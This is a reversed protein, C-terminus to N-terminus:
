SDWTVALMSGGVGASGVSADSRLDIPGAGMVAMKFARGAAAESVHGAVFAGLVALSESKRFRRQQRQGDPLRFAVRTSDSDSASPEDPLPPWSVSAVPPEEEEVKEKGKASTPPAAESASPRGTDELSAALARQLMEEESEEQPAARPPASEVPVSGGSQRPRKTPAQPEMPGRDMFPVLDEVLREHEVFGKWVHRKQGTLPDLVLIVPAQFLQYYTLVKSGEETDDYVQWFVFNSKLTDKVTDQAWTDRNLMYSPFETRSQVNVLLWRGQEVAQAKAQEFSGKFMVELPPEYLKALGTPGAGEGLQMQGEERFNRFADVRAPPPARDAHQAMGQGYMPRAYADDYLAERRTPLPARVGDEDYQETPRESPGPAAQVPAVPNSPRESASSIGGAFFLQVADDLQWNTAELIQLADEENASTVDFFTQLTQAKEADGM